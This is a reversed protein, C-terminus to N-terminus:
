CLSDCLPTFLVRVSILSPTHWFNSRLMDILPISCMALVRLARRESEVRLASCFLLLFSVRVFLSNNGILVCQISDPRKRVSPTHQGEEHVYHGKTRVLTTVKM